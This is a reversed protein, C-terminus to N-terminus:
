GIKGPHCRRGDIRAEQVLVGASLQLASHNDLDTALVKQYNALAEANRGSMILVFDLLNQAKTSLRDLKLAIRLERQAEELREGPALM